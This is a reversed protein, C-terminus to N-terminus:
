ENNKLWLKAKELAPMVEAEDGRWVFVYIYKEKECYLQNWDGRKQSPVERCGQDNVSIKELSKKWRESAEHKQIMVTASDELKKGVNVKAWSLIIPDPTLMEVWGHPAAGWAQAFNLFLILPALIKM